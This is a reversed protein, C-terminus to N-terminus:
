DAAVIFLPYLAVSWVLLPRDLPPPAADETVDIRKRPFAIATFLALVALLILTLPLMDWVFAHFTMGSRQWLFLNQPNGVPTLASGANVALAEITPWDVLAPFSAFSSPKALTLVACLALLVHLLYDQKLSRWFRPALIQPRLNM